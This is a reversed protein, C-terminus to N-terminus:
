KRDLVHGNSSYIYGNVIFFEQNTNDTVYNWGERHNRWSLLNNKSSVILMPGDSMFHFISPEPIQTESILHLNLWPLRYIGEATTM